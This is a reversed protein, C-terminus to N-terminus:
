AVVVWSLCPLLSVMERTKNSARVVVNGGTDLVSVAVFFGYCFKHLLLGLCVRCCLFWKERKTARVRPCLRSPHWRVCVIQV